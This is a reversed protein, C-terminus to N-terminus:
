GWVLLPSFYQTCGDVRGFFMGGRQFGVRLIRRRGGNGRKPMGGIKERPTAASRTEGLRPLLGLEELVPLQVVGVPFREFREPPNARLNLIVDLRSHREEKGRAGKYLM